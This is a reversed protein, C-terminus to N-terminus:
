SVRFSHINSLLRTWSPIFQTTRIHTTATGEDVESPVFLDRTLLGADELGGGKGGAKPGPRSHFAKRM